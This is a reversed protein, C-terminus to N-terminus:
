QPANSVADPLSSDIRLLTDLATMQLACLVVPSCVLRLQCGPALRRHLHVLTALTSTGLFSV